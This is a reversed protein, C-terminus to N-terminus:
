PLCDERQPKMKVVVPGDSLDSHKKLMECDFTTTKGVPLHIDKSPTIGTSRKKFQFELKKGEIETMTKLGFIFDLSTSFPLLYAIIEFTHGEFFFIFFKTAEKAIM